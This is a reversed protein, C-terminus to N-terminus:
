KNRREDKNSGGEVSKSNLKNKKQLEKLHLNLNTKSIIKEEKHLQKNSYVKMNSSSKIYGNTKSSQKKMKHTHTELYKIKQTM